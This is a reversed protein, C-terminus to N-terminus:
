INSLESKDLGLGPMGAMGKRGMGEKEGPALKYAPASSPSVPPPSPLLSYCFIIWGAVFAGGRAHWGLFRFSFDVDSNRQKEGRKERITRKKGKGGKRSRGERRTAKLRLVVGEGGGKGEGVAESFSLARSFIIPIQRNEM